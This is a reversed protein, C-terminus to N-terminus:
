AQRHLHMGKGVTHSECCLGDIGQTGHQRKKLDELNFANEYYPKSIIQRRREAQIQVWPSFCHSNVGHHFRLTFWFLEVFSALLEQNKMVKHQSLIRSATFILRILEWDKFVWSRLIGWAVMPFTCPLAETGMVSNLNYALGEWLNESKNYLVAILDFLSHNFWM